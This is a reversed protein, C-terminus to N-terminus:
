SSFLGDDDQAIEFIDALTFYPKYFLRYSIKNSVSSPETVTFSHKSINIMYVM